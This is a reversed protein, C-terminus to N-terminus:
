TRGQADLLPRPLSRAAFVAEFAAMFRLLLGEQGRKAAACLGFPRANVDSYKVTGLPMCAIPCGIATTYMCLPSDALAVVIDVDKFLRGLGNEGRARLEALMAACEEETTSNAQLDHLESQSPHEPVIDARLSKREPSRVSNKGSPLCLSANRENFDIIDGISRVECDELEDLFAQLTKNRLQHFAIGYFPSKGDITFAEWASPLDVNEQVEAGNERITKIATSYAKEMQRRTDRPWNCIDDPLRWEKVNCFGVRVGDFGGEISFPESRQMLAATLMSLDEVSKAMGGIFDICDTYHFVGEVDVVDLGCKLAYLGARNAPTILSGCCESGVSLPAFGAAVAAASGSSSGGISSHGLLKDSPDLGGFIYPSQTEGGMPSWGPTIGKYKLGCFETLNTTGLIILGSDILHRIVPATRKAKASRFCPAGATTPLDLDRTLFLDKIVIPIGHLPGRLASNQREADLKRALALLKERPAVSIMANLHLGQHNHAEIQDLYASILAVSTTAGTHLLHRAESATLTLLDPGTSTAM